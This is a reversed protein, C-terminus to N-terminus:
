PQLEIVALLPRHDSAVREALVETSVVRIKDAPRALIYDIQKTPAESPYTHLATSTPTLRWERILIALPESDPDANLDGALITPTSSRALIENLQTAQQQRLEGQIHHLHTTAFKVTQEGVAMDVTVAIRRERDPVGPLWHISVESIPDRSLIAQGYQGGEFDIQRGFRGHLGTLRALEATQDIGGTRLTKHDVEQLAVLDPRAGSIVKALRPLDVKGDTGEGHHINYCLVRLTIPDDAHAPLAVCLALAATLWHSPSPM